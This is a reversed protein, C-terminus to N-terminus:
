IRASRKSMPTKSCAKCRRWRPWPTSTRRAPRRASPCTIARAQRGVSRCLRGAGCSAAQREDDRHRVFLGAPQRLQELFGEFKEPTDVTHYDVARNPTAIAAEVAAPATAFIALKTRLSHFGFDACLETMAQPNGRGLRAVAWDVVIPVRRDLEVLRRSLLAQQRFDILNQRRKGAPLQDAHELLRELTEFKELWERAVKPGVLPVGPINDVSDGVLAQFDVVQEPRIGWDQKLACADYVQDKRVNYVKVRESILQRCDKDATVLYCDGGLEQTQHALTALIDDAEFTPCDLVAIGMASLMRQIAPFQPRLDDPMETRQGKYAEFFEHRFTPESRDFAVFLYDPKKQEALYVLDRTFGFVAAVPEGRPSTMEPIAHFVQFILSNADVVWVTQGRLTAPTATPEAAGCDAPLALAPGAASQLPASIKQPEAPRPSDPPQPDAQMGPLM